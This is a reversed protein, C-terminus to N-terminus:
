SIINRGNDSTMGVAPLPCTPTGDSVHCQARGSSHAEGFECAGSGSPEAWKGLKQLASLAQEGLHRLACSRHGCPPAYRRVAARWVLKTGYVKANSCEVEPQGYAVRASPCRCLGDAPLAPALQLVEVAQIAPASPNSGSAAVRPPHAADWAWLVRATDPTCPYPLSRQTAAERGGEEEDDEEEESDDGSAEGEVADVGEGSGGDGTDGEGEAGAQQEATVAALGDDEPPLLQAAVAVWGDLVAGVHKCRGQHKSSTCRLSSDALLKVARDGVYFFDGPQPRSDVPQQGRVCVHVADGRKPALLQSAPEQGPVAPTSVAAQLAALNAAVYCTHLCRRGGGPAELACYAACSCSLAGSARDVEM